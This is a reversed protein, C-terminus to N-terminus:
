GFLAAVLEQAESPATVTLSARGHDLTLGFSFFGCCDAERVALGAVESILAPEAPFELRVGDPVPQRSAARALVSRWEELRDEMGDAPLTCAIPITKRETM